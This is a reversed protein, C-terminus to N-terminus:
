EEAWASARRAVRRVGRRVGRAVRTKVNGVLFYAGVVVATILVISRGYGSLSRFMDPIGWQDMLQGAGREIEQKTATSFSRIEAQIEGPAHYYGTKGDTSYENPLPWTRANAREGWVTYSYAASPVGTPSVTVRGGDSKVRSAWATYKASAM